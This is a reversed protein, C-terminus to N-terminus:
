DHFYLALYGPEHSPPWGEGCGEITKELIGVGVDLISGLGVDLRKSGVSSTEGVPTYIYPCFGERLCGLEHNM